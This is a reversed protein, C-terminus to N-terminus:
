GKTDWISMRVVLGIHEVSCLQCYKICFDVHLFIHKCYFINCYYNCYYKGLMSNQSMESLMVLFFFFLFCDDWIILVHM